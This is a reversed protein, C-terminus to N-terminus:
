RRNHFQGDHKETFIDIPWKIEDWWDDANIFEYASDLQEKTLGLRHLKICNAYSTPANWSNMTDYRFHGSLLEQMSNKSRKDVHKEFFTM